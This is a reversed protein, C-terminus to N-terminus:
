GRAALHGCAPCRSMSAPLPAACYICFDLPPSSSGAGIPDAPAGAPLPRAAGLPRNGWASYMLVFAVVVWALCAYLALDSYRPLAYWVALTAGLVAMNVLSLFTRALM